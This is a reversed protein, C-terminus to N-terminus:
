QVCGGPVPLLANALATADSTSAVKKEIEDDSRTLLYWPSLSLYLSRDVCVCVCVCVCVGGCVRVRM